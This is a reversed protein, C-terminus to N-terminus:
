LEADLIIKNGAANSFIRFARGVTWTVGAQQWDFHAVVPSVNTSNAAQRTFVTLAAVNVGDFGSWQSATVTLAPTTRMPVPFSIMGQANNTATVTGIALVAYDNANSSEAVFCYRQCLALEQQMLRPVWVTPAYTVLWLGFESIDIRDSAHAPVDQHWVMVILNNCSLGVTASVSIQQSTNHTIATVGTALVNVNSSVFFNGGTFTSSAWNNVVDKTVSDATGTWELIAYRVNISGSGANKSAAVKFSFTKSRGRSPVSYWAEFVSAIGFRNTTGGAVLRIAKRANFAGSALGTPVNVQRITANAGQVLSYVRDPGNYAADTMAVAGSIAGRQFIESGTNIFGNGELLVNSFHKARRTVAQWIALEKAHTIDNVHSVFAYPSQYVEGIWAEIEAESVDASDNPDYDVPM